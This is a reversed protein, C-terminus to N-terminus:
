DAHATSSPGPGTCVEGEEPKSISDLVILHVGTLEFIKALAARVRLAIQDVYRISLAGELANEPNVVPIKRKALKGVVEQWKTRLDEATIGSYVQAEAGATKAADGGGPSAASQTVM